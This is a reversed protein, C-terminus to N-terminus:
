VPLHLGSSDQPRAHLYRSTTALSKHGLTRAILPLPVGREAAHSGHCHRLWHPSVDQDIGVRLAAARVIRFVQKPNLHGGGSRKRSQFVPEDLGSNGRLELVQEWTEQSFAIVRTAGGKGFVKVQAGSIRSPKLDRWTLGILEEVRVGTAYLFRLMARNRQNPESAIMALVQSETLIREVLNDEVKPLIVPLGSNVPLVGIKHGFSLISKVASLRRSITAAAYDKYELADAFRQVDNLTVLNFPKNEVFALFYSIDRRYAKESCVSKGHLWLDVLQENTECYALQQQNLGKRPWRQPLKELSEQSAAFSM